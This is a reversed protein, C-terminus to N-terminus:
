TLPVFGIRDLTSLDAVGLGTDGLMWLQDGIVLSRRIPAGTLNGGPRITGNRVHVAVAGNTRGNVPVVLLQTAPWWLVAHPDFEAESTSDALVHQALRRPHAPDAVDFLSIGLGERVGQASAEQGIGVLLDGGVPQLHASYGTIKLSGSVTPHAPDSLDVSYLPDTQRFTVVYGRPGLFRVAYIQEGKGLGDVTGVEALTAGRTALVRVASSSSGTTRAATAVRLYGDWESLAYQNLLTGPVSGSAQFRPKDAGALAFKYIDTTTAAKATLDVMKWRQDNAIYLSAPTGYVIDGDAVVSVPSGDTLAPGALDFTVVTLMQAGSYSAPRNVSGCDVHGRTTTAGTTVEWQPLWANVDTRNVVAQNQRLRSQDNGRLIPPFVIRPGSSLVIRAVSGTQRADVIRGDAHYRSVLRPSGTLDVLLAEAGAVDERQLVGDAARITGDLRLGGYGLVLAKDGALLLRADGALGLTLKGTERRTAPDIVHLTGGEVTVIRRGDTKVIDPEDAGQEHANTGSFTPGPAPVPVAVADAARMSNGEAALPEPQAVPFGYATISRLAAARLETLLRDCSDFAVLKFPPTPPQEPPTARDPDPATCGALPLLLVACIWLRRRM